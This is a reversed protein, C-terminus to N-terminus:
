RFAKDIVDILIKKQADLSVIDSLTEKSKRQAVIENRTLRSLFVRLDGITTRSAVFGFSTNRVFRAMETGEVVLPPIGAAIFEFFKNPMAAVFNFSNLPYFVVGIDFHKLSELINSSQVPELFFVNKFKSALKKLRRKESEAGVLIMTLSVANLDGVAKIVFDLGRYKDSLGHYVMRIESDSREPIEVPLQSSVSLLVSSKVGWDTELRAKIGESVTLAGDVLPLYHKYIRIVEPKQFLRWFLSRENEEPHYERLDVIIRKAKSSNVIAPLLGINEVLCLDYPEEDFGSFRSLVVEKYANSGEGFRHSPPLIKAALFRIWWSFSFIKRSGHIQFYRLRGDFESGNPALSLVDVTHGEELLFDIHRKPRLNKRVDTVDAVLVRM